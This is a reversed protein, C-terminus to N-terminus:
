TRKEQKRARVTECIEKTIQSLSAVIDDALYRIVRYGHEQLLRDKRRDRRYAEAGGAFHFYGDIEVAIGLRRSVVDVEAPRTGFKFDLKGNLEFLGATEAHQELVRFLLDEYASRAVSAPADKPLTAARDFARVVELAGGAVLEDRIQAHGALLDHPAPPPPDPVVDVLGERLLAKWRADRGRMVASYISTSVAVGMPLSPVSIALSSIHQLEVDGEPTAEDVIVLLAPPVPAGALLDVLFREAAVPTPVPRGLITCAMAERPGMMAAREFLVTADRSHSDVLAAVSEITTEAARAVTDIASGRLAPHAGLAALCRAV